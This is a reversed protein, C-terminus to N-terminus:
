ITIGLQMPLTSMDHEHMCAFFEFHRSPPHVFVSQPESFQTPRKRILRTQLLRLPQFLLGLSHSTLPEESISGPNQSDVNHEAIEMGKALAPSHGM